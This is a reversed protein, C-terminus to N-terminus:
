FGTNSASPTRRWYSNPWRWRGLRSCADSITLDQRGLGVLTRRWCATMRANTAATRGSAAQLVRRQDDHRCKPRLMGATRPVRPESGKPGVLRELPSGPLEERYAIAAARYGSLQDNPGAPSRVTTSLCAKLIRCQAPKADPMPSEAALALM